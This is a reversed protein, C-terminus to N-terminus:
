ENRWMKCLGKWNLMNKNTISHFWVWWPRLMMTHLKQKTRTLWVSRGRQVYCLRQQATVLIWNSQINIENRGGTEIQVWILQERIHTYESHQERCTNVSLQAKLHDLVLVLTLYLACFLMQLYCSECFMHVLVHACVCTCLCKARQHPFHWELYQPHVCLSLIRSNSVMFVSSSSFIRLSFSSWCLTSM